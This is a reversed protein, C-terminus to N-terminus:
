PLASSEIRLKRDLIARCLSCQGNSRSRWCSLSVDTTALAWACAWRWTIPVSALPSAATTEEEAWSTWAAATCCKRPVMWCHAGLGAGSATCCTSSESSASPSVPLYVSRDDVGPKQSVRSFCSSLLESSIRRAAANASPKAVTPAIPVSSFTTMSLTCCAPEAALPCFVCYRSRVERRSTMAIPTPVCLDAPEAESASWRRGWTGRTSGMRLWYASEASSLTRFTTDSDSPCRSMTSWAATICASVPSRALLSLSLQRVRADATDATRKAAAFCHGASVMRGSFSASSLERLSSSSWTRFAARCETLTTQRHGEQLSIRRPWVSKMKSRMLSSELCFGSSM